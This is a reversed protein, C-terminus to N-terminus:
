ENGSSVEILDISGEMVNLYLRNPNCCIECDYIEAVYGSFEPDIELFAPFEQFCFHCTIIKEIM